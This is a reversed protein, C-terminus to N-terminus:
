EGVSGRGDRQKESPLPGPRLPGPLPVHPPASLGPDWCSVGAGPKGPLPAEANLVLELHALLHTSPQPSLVGAHLSGPRLLWVPLGRGWLCNRNAVALRFLELIFIFRASRFGNPMSPPLVRCSWLMKGRQGGPPWLEQVAGLFVRRSCVRVPLLDGWGTTVHSSFISVYVQRLSSCM